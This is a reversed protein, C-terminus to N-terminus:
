GPRALTVDNGRLGFTAAITGPPRVAAMYALMVVGIGVLVLVVSHAVVV